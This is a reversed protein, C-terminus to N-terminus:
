AGIATLVREWNAVEEPLRGMWDDIYQLGCLLRFGCARAAEALDVADLLTTDAGFWAVAEVLVQVASSKPTRWGPSMDIFGFVGAADILVNGAIDGHVVQCQTQEPERLPPGLARAREWMSWELAGTNVTPPLPSGHWVTREARAWRHERRDLWAPRGQHGARAAARVLEAHFADATAAVDHWDGRVHSGELWRWATWNDVLWGGDDARVPKIVRFSEEHMADLVDAVWDGEGPNPEGVPKLVTDGFRWATQALGGALPTPDGSAGFARVVKEPPRAGENQM